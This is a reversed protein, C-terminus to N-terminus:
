KGFLEKQSDRIAEDEFLEKETQKGFEVDMNEMVSKILCRKSCFVDAMFKYGKKIRKECEVCYLKIV